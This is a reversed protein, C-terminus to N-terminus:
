NLLQTLAADASLEERKGSARRKLEVTGAKVGRPGIVLEVVALESAHEVQDLRMEPESGLVRCLEDVRSVFLGLVQYGQMVERLEQM